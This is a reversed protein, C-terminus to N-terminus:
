ASTREPDPADPDPVVTLARARAAALVMSESDNLYQEMARAAAECDGACLQACIGADRVVWPKQFREADAAASFALRAQAAVSAFLRDLRPSGIFGVIARHFALSETGVARWDGREAADQMAAVHGQLARMADVPARASCAIGRLELTMRIAYIERIDSAGLTKVTVGHHPRHEVLGEAILAHLAERLTNRSLNLAEAWVVERVPAGAALEGRLIKDRLLIAAGESASLALGSSASDPRSM